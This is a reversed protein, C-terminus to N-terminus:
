VCQININILSGSRIQDMVTDKILNNNLVRYPKNLSPLYELLCFRLCIVCIGYLIRCFGSDRKIDVLCVCCIRRNM